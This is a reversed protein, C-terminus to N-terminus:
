GHAEAFRELARADGVVPRSLEGLRGFNGRRAEIRLRAVHAAATSLIEDLEARVRDSTRSPPQISDFTGQVGTVGEESESLVVGAYPGFANGRASASAILQATQVHSLAAEATTVAKGEYKADTRAPGVPHAVCGTTLVAILATAALSRTM